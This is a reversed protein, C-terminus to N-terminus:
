KSLLRHGIRCYMCKKKECYERKLQIMAQSDFANEIIIGSKAFLSTVANSEPKISELLNIARNKYEDKGNKKSYAFLVPVVTNILIIDIASLGLLRSRRPTIHGFRYHTNWYEDPKAIFLSNYQKKETIELLESFLGQISRIISALQVIKIHPFNDPRIRLNRFIHSELPKLRYKKRLFSYEQKLKSFYEDNITEDEELLGAQGLFIAETQLISDSHKLIIKLPLSKALREFADNNIGFGFNRSLTIYFAENWDNKYKKLLDSVTNSKREIRELLLANKWDRLYIEPIDRIFGVCPVSFDSELLFHYNRLIKEPVTIKYQPIIRGSQDRVENRDINEVVHLIVSNYLKDKDHQHRRWDSSNIHIEINGVWVTDSFKIKANFFDPGSDTNYLGPDIVEFRKGDSTIM